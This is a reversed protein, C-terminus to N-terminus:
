SQNQVDPPRLAKMEVSAAVRPAALHNLDGGPHKNSECPCEDYHPREKGESPEHYIRCDISNHKELHTDLRKFLCKTGVPEIIWLSRDLAARCQKRRQVERYKQVAM